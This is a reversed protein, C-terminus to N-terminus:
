EFDKEDIKISFFFVNILLLHIDVLVLIVRVRIFKKFIVSEAEISKSQNYLYIYIPYVKGKSLLNKSVCSIAEKINLCVQFM